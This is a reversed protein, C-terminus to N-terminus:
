KKVHQIIAEGIQQYEPRRNDDIEGAVEYNDLPSSLAENLCRLCDMPEFGFTYSILYSLCKGAMVLSKQATPHFDRAHFVEAALVYDAAAHKIDCWKKQDIDPYAEFIAQEALVRSQYHLKTLGLRFNMEEANREVEKIDGSGNENDHEINCIQEDDHTLAAEYHGVEMIQDMLWGRKAEAQTTM